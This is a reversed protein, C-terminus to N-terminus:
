DDFEELKELDEEPVGVSILMRRFKAAQDQATIRQRRYRAADAEAQERAKEDAKSRADLRQILTEEKDAKGKIAGQIVTWLGALAGTGGAGFILAFIVEPTM